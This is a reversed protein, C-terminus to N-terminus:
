KRYASTPPHEQGEGLDAQVFITDLYLKNANLYPVGLKANPSLNCPGIYLVQVRLSM